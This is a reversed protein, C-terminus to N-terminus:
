FRRSRIRKLIRRKQQRINRRDKKTLKLFDREIRVYKAYRTLNWKIKWHSGMKVIKWNRRVLKRLVMTRSLIPLNGYKKLKYLSYKPTLAKYLSNAEDFHRPIIRSAVFVLTDHDAKSKDDSILDITRALEAYSRITRKYTM